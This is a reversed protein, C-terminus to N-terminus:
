DIELHYGLSMIASIIQDENVLSEDYEISMIQKQYSASINKIGPLEEEIGELRMACSSCHMDKISFIKKIM